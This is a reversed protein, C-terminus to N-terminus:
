ADNLEGGCHSSGAGPWVHGTEPIGRERIVRVKGNEKVCRHSHAFVGEKLMESNATNPIWRRCTYCFLSYPGGKRPRVDEYEQMNM